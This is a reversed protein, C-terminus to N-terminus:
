VLVLFGLVLGNLKLNIINSTSSSAKISVEVKGFGMIMKCNIKIKESVPFDDIKGSATRNILGFQGGKVSISWDVDTTDGDGINELVTIVKSLGGRISVVDLIPGVIHLTVTESWQSDLGNKDRAKVRIDYNGPREWTHNLTINIGSAMWDTWEVTDDGWDFCYKIMDGDPDSTVTSYSYQVDSEGETPGVPKEPQLPKDSIKAIKVTPDNFPQWEEVTKYGHAGYVGFENIYNNLATTWLEGTTKSEYVGYAKFASLEMGGTLGQTCSSGVYGWGLASNGYATIGGGDPNKLFSWGFCIDDSFQLNSCGGIVVIPIKEQNNLNMVHFNLYTGIPWYVSFDNHPYTFWCEPTGHGTIYLVGAGNNIANDVNIALQLRGNSAWVEDPIFGDMLDLAHVNLYEGEDVAMSDQFTDGGCVIMNSFWEEMYAGSTEYTIIKNIVGSVEDEDRFNLRGLRVDPYLDVEDIESGDNEGFIDNENSDWSCFHGYKDYVDAYYLDSILSEEMGDWVHSMRVPIKNAGGAFLVNTVDWNEITDKIFYKIKEQDDRGEVPFYTGTYIDDLTVMITERDSDNKYYVLPELYETYELPTIIVMDYEDEFTIPQIPKSVKVQINIKKVQQIIDLGPSYRIPYVKVALFVVRSSDDLGCGSNYNYWNTPFFENSGYVADDKEFFNYNNHQNLNVNNSILVPQPSPIIENSISKEIIEELECDVSLIKTGFPFKFVKTYVPIMPKGPDMLFSTAEVLELKVYKGESILNPDSFIISHNEEKLYYENEDTLVIPMFNIILLTAVLLGVIKIKM